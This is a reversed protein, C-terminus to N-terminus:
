TRGGCLCRRRRRSGGSHDEHTQDPLQGGEGTANGGQDHVATARRPRRRRMAVAAPLFDGYSTHNIAVVAGGCAPVNEVGRYTIRTGTAMVVLQATIELARFTPEVM